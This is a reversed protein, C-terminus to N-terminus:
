QKIEREDDVIIYPSDLGIGVYLNYCYTVVSWTVSWTNKKLIYIGGLIRCKLCALWTKEKSSLMNIIYGITVSCVIWPIVCYCKYLVLIIHYCSHYCSIISSIYTHTKYPTLPTTQCLSTDVVYKMINTNNPLLFPGSSFSNVMTSGTHSATSLFLSRM